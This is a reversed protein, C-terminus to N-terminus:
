EELDDGIGLGNSGDSLSKSVTMSGALTGDVYLKTQNSGTGERVLAFHHWKNTSYSVTFENYDENSRGNYSAFAMQTSSTIRLVWNGNYGNTYYYKSGIITGNTTKSTNFFGEITFNGTGLDLDSNGTVELYDGTGDFQVSGTISNPSILGPSTSSAAANGNATISGPSVAYATASSSSQLALLSTNPLNTLETFTPSFNSTYLATGKIVRVNSISGNWWGAGAVNGGVTVNNTSNKINVNISTGSGYMVGDVFM